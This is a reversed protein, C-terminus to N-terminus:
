QHDTDSQKGLYCDQRLEQFLVEPANAASYNSRLMVDNLEMAALTPQGYILSLQELIDQVTMGDHWEQIAPYNSVKFANNISTDLANFCARKINQVLLFYHKCCVFMTNILAPETQTLPTVDPQQGPVIPHTYDAVDWQNLSVCFTINILFAYVPLLM